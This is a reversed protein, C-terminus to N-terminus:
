IEVIVKHVKEDNIVPLVNGRIRIGDVSIKPSVGQMRSRNLICIHYKTDRFCRLVEAKDWGNPFCPKIRLGEYDRHLGMIGEYLGKMAWASTGTTGSQYSKGYYLPHTMYCNTFYYPEAGSRDNPNEKSDPMIKLLTSLAKDARGVKCDMLIKFASAHCYVGGNEYLGPLMGSMRGVFPLYEEYPPMNIPFGFDHEMSDISNLVIPLRENNPIGALVAWVQSNIYIKSGKSNKSGILGEKGIARVYWKGDWAKENVLHKLAEYEKSAFDAYEYNGTLNMLVTIEKLAFCLQETLMVSEADPDNTINLADNWDAFFIKVLGNPGRDELLRGIAAKIHDVVTGMGGDQYEVNFDLISYDGTEKILEIISWIIWFPQDSYRTDDYPQWSLVAHGDRFQHRLVELIEAKAKVLRYMSLASAIQLNDRVGKKGVICYDVQKKVWNNMINNIRCDPTTISLKSYKNMYHQKTTQFCELVLSDNSYKKASLRAEEISESVGLVMHINKKEDPYLILKNQIVGGLIFLVGSSNTCDKGKIVTDPRQFVGQTCAGNGTITGLTGLFIALDGDYAYVNESCAFYANYREHPKFPHKNLCYIGNMDSDFCASCSRYVEYYRPYKFGELDFSVVSFISLKRIKNSDNSIHLTWVENYGECPVFLRWSCLVGTKQSKILTYAISHECSYNDISEMLPAEGINWYVGSEDDRLYVYRAENNNVNCRESNKNIYFSSGHGTQSINACYGRESWLRNYWHRPTRPNKIGCINGNDKFKYLATKCM